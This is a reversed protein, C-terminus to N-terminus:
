LVVQLNLATISDTFSIFYMSQVYAYDENNAFVFAVKNGIQINQTFFTDSWATSQALKSSKGRKKKVVDLDGRIDSNISVSISLLQMYLTWIIVLKSYVSLEAANMPNNLNDGVYDGFLLSICHFLQDFIKSFNTVDFFKCFLLVTDNTDTTPSSFKILKSKISIILGLVVQLTGIPMELTNILSKMLLDMKEAKNGGKRDSAIGDIAAIVDGIDVMLSVFLNVGFKTTSGISVHHHLNQYFVIAARLDQQILKFCRNIQIDNLTLGTASSKLEPTLEQPYFNSLLLETLSNRISPKSYDIVLRQLLQEPAAIDYFHM